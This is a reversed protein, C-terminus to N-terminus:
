NQQPKPAVVWYLLNDEDDVVDHLLNGDREMVEGYVSRHAGSIPCTWSLSHWQGHASVEGQVNPLNNIQKKM